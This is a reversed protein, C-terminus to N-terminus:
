GALKSVTSHHVAPTMDSSSSVTPTSIDLHHIQYILVFKFFNFFLYFDLIFVLFIKFGDFFFLFWIFIYLVLFGLYPYPVLALYSM